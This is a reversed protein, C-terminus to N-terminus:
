DSSYYTAPGPLKLFQATERTLNTINIKTTIRHGTESFNEDHRCILIACFLIVLFRAPVINLSREVFMVSTM